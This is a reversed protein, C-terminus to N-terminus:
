WGSPGSRGVGYAWSRSAPPTAPSAAPPRLTAAHTAVWLAAGIFCVAVAGIVVCIAGNWGPAPPDSSGALERGAAAAAPLTGVALADARADARYVGDEGMTVAGADRLRMLRHRVTRAPIALRAALAPSTMPEVALLGCILPDTPSDLGSPLTAAPHSDTPEM